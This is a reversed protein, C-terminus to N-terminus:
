HGTPNAILLQILGLIFAGIVTTTVWFIVKGNKNKEEDVEKELNDLRRHANKALDSASDAKERISEVKNSLESIVDVKGNITALDLRVQLMIDNMKAIERQVNEDAM